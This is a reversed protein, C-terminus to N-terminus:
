NQFTKTLGPGNPKGLAKAIEVWSLAYSRMIEIQEKTIIYSPRGIGGTESLPARYCLQENLFPILCSYQEIMRGLIGEMSSLNTVLMQLVRGPCPRTTELTWHIRRVYQVAAELKVQINSLQEANINPDEISRKSLFYLEQLEHVFEEVTEPDIAVDSILLQYSLIFNVRRSCWFIRSSFIKCFKAYFQLLTRPSRFIFFESSIPFYQRVGPFHSAASRLLHTEPQLFILFCEFTQTSLFVKYKLVLFVLERM